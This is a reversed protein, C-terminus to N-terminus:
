PRTGEAVAWAAEAHLYGPASLGARERMRREAASEAGQAATVGRMVELADRPAYRGPSLLLDALMLRAGITDPHAAGLTQALVAQGSALMMVAPRADGARRAAAGVTVRLLALTTSDPDLSQSAATLTERALAGAAEREGAEALLLARSAQTLLTQPHDAGLRESLRVAADELFRSASRTDGAAYAAAARIRLAEGAAWSDAQGAAELDSLVRVALADAEAPRGAEILTAGLASLGELVVAEPEGGAEYRATLRAYADLAADLDSRDALMKARVAAAAGSIAEDPGNILAALRPEAEDFRSLEVLMVAEMLRWGPLRGAYEEPRGEAFPIIIQYTALASAADGLVWQLRAEQDAARLFTQFLEAAAAQAKIQRAMMLADAFREAKELSDAYLILVALTEPVQAGQEAVMVRAAAELADAAEGWRQEARLAEGRQAEARAAELPGADQALAGPTALLALAALAARAIM